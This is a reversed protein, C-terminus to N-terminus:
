AGGMYEWDGANFAQRLRTWEDSMDIKAMQGYAMANLIWLCAKVQNATIIGGDGAFVLDHLRQVFPRPNCPFSTTFMVLEAEDYMRENIVKDDM